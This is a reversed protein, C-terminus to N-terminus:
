TERSVITNFTILLSTFAIDEYGKIVRKVKDSAITPFTECFFDTSYYGKYFHINPRKWIKHAGEVM